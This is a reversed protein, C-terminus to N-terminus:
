VTQNICLVEGFDGKYFAGVPAREIGLLSSLRGRGAGQASGSASAGAGYAPRTAASKALQEAHARATTIDDLVVGLGVRAKAM